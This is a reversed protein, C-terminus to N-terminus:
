KSLLATKQRKQESERAKQSKLVYEAAKELLIQNFHRTVLELVQPLIGQIERSLQARSITSNKATRQRKISKAFLAVADSATKEISASHAIALKLLDKPNIGTSILRKAILLMEVSDAYYRNKADQVPRILGAEIASNIIDPSLGSRELLEAYNVNASSDLAALIPDSTSSIGNPIAHIQRLSFGREQLRQIEKIRKIHSAGYWAIRGELLPSQLLKKRQYYRITSVSLGSEASLQEIRIKRM